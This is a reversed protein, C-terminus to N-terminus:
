CCGRRGVGVRASVRFVGLLGSDGGEVGEGGGVVACGVGRVDGECAAGQGEEVGKGGAQEGRALREQHDVELAAEVDRPQRAGLRVQPM